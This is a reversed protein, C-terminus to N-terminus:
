PWAELSVVPTEKTGVCSGPRVGSSCATRSANRVARAVCAALLAAVLLSFPFLGRGLLQTLAALSAEAVIVDTKGLLGVSTVGAALPFAGACAVAFCCIVLLSDPGIRGGLRWRFDLSGFEVIAFFGECFGSVDTEAGGVFMTKCDVVTEESGIAGMTMVFM